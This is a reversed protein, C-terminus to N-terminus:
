PLRMSGTHKDDGLRHAAIRAMKRSLPSNAAAMSSRRRKRADGVVRLRPIRAVIAPQFGSRGPFRIGLGGRNSRTRQRLGAASPLVTRCRPETVNLTPCLLLPGRASRKEMGPPPDWPQANVARSSAEDEM